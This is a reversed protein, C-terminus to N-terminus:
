IIAKKRWAELKPLERALEAWLMGGGAGVLLVGIAMFVGLLLTNERNADRVTSPLLSTAAVTGDKYVDAYPPWLFFYGPVLAFIVLIGCAAVYGGSRQWFREQTCPAASAAVAGAALVMALVLFVILATDKDSQTWSAGRVAPLEGKMVRYAEQYAAQYEPLTQLCNVSSSMYACMDVLGVSSGASSYCQLSNVAMITAGCSQTIGVDIEYALKYLADSWQSADLAAVNETYSQTVADVMAQMTDNTISSATSICNMNAQMYCSQKLSDIVIDCSNFQALNVCVQTNLSCDQMTSVYIDMVDNVYDDVANTTHEGTDPAFWASGSEAGCTSIADSM